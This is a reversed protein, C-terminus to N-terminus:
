VRPSLEYPPRQLTGAITSVPANLPPRRVVCQTPVLVGPVYTPPIVTADQLQLLLAQTAAITETKATAAIYAPGAYFPMQIVYPRPDHQVYNSM